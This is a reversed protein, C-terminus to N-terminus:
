KKRLTSAISLHFNKGMDQVQFDMIMRENDAFFQQKRQIMEEIINLADMQVLPNGAFGQKITQDLMSQRELDPMIAANWAIVAMTFLKERQNHNKIAPLYPEVFEELVDSMKVEGQPNTVIGSINNALVGKKVKQQFETFAEDPTKNTQQQKLLEGFGKSKKAM